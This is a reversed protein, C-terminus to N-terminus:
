PQLDAPNFTSPSTDIKFLTCTDTCCFWRTEPGIHPIADGAKWVDAYIRESYAVKGQKDVTAWRWLKPKEAEVVKMHHNIILEAHKALWAPIPNINQEWARLAGLTVGYIEAAEKQTLDQMTRIVILDSPTM